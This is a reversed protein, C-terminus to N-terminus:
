HLVQPYRLYSHNVPIVGILESYCSDCVLGVDEGNDDFEYGCEYLDAHKEADTLEDPFEGYCCACIFTKKTM